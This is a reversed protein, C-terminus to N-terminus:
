RWFRWWAKSKSGDALAADGHLVPRPRTPPPWILEGSWAFGALASRRYDDIGDPTRNRGDSPNLSLAGLATLATTFDSVTGSAFGKLAANLAGTVEQFGSMCMLDEAQLLVAKPYSHEIFGVWDVFFDSFEEGVLDLVLRQRAKLRDVATATVSWYITVNESKTSGDWMNFERPFVAADTQDFAALWFLPVRYPAALEPGAATDPFGIDDDSFFAVARDIADAESICGLLHCRNAM